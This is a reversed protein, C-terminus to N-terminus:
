NVMGPFGGYAELLAADEEDTRSQSLSGEPAPPDDGTGPGGANLVEGILNDDTPSTSDPDSTPRPPPTTTLSFKEM